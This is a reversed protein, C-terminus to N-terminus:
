LIITLFKGDALGFAVGDEFVKESTTKIYKRLYKNYYELYFEGEEMYYRLWIDRSGNEVESLRIANQYMTAFKTLKTAVVHKKYNQVLQSATLTAVVGIVAITILVEALTFTHKSHAFKELFYFSSKQM